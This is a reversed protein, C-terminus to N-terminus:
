SHLKKKLEAVSHVEVINGQEYDKEADAIESLLFPTPKYSLSFNVSKTRVLQRLFSNVLTGLSIGIKAAVDQANSKLIKDTKVTLLTKTNTTMYRLIYKPLLKDIGACLRCYELFNSLYEM